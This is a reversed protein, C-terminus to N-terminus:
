RVKTIYRFGKTVFRGTLMEVPTNTKDYAIQDIVLLPTGPAVGLLRCDEENAVDAWISERASALRLGYREELMALVRDPLEEATPFDPFRHAPLTMIDHAALVGEVTRVRHIRIVESQDPALELASREAPTAPGREVSLTRPVSVLLRDNEGHLREYHFLFRLSHHPSRDTVFTGHRPRRELFGLNVLSALARRVTGVSLGYQSCARGRESHRDRAAM